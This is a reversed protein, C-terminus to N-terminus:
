GGLEKVEGRLEEGVDEEVDIRGLQRLEGPCAPAQARECFVIEEPFPVHPTM